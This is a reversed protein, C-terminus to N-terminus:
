ALALDRLVIDRELAEVKTLSSNQARRGSRTLSDTSQQFPSNRATTEGNRRGEASESRTGWLVGQKATNRTSFEM